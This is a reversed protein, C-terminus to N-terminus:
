APAHRLADDLKDEIREMWRELRAELGQFQQVSVLEGRLKTELQHRADRHDRDLQDIQRQLKYAWALLPIIIATLVALGIGIWNEM